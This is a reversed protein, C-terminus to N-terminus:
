GLSLMFSKSEKMIVKLLDLTLAFDEPDAPQRVKLAPDPRGDWARDILDSWKSNFASKVWVAGEPKSGPYGRYLDHLMRCFNLVIYTQYFWNKYPIPDDLIV